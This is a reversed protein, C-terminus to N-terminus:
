LLSGYTDTYDYADQQIVPAEDKGVQVEFTRMGINKNFEAMALEMARYNQQFEYARAVGFTVLDDHFPIPVQLVTATSTGTTYQTPQPVYSVAVTKIDSALPTPWLHVKNGKLYYVIPVGTQPLNYWADIAADTAFELVYSDYTLKDLLMLDAITVPFTNAASSATAYLCQTERVVTRQAENLFDILDQDTLLDNYKDGFRSQVRRKYEAIDM